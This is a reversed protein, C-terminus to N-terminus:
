TSSAVEGLADDRMLAFRQISSCECAEIAAGDGPQAVTAYSGAGGRFQGTSTSRVLGSLGHRRLFPAMFPFICIVSVTKLGSGFYPSFRHSPLCLAM